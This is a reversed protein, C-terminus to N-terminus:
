AISAATEDRCCPLKNERQKCDRPIKTRPEDPSRLHEPTVCLYAPLAV